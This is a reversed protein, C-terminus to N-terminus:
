HAVAGAWPSHASFGTGNHFMVMVRFSHKHHLSGFSTSTRTPALVHKRLETWRRISPHYEQIMVVTSTRRAGTSPLTWSARLADTGSRSLHVSTTRTPTPPTSPICSHNRDSAPL